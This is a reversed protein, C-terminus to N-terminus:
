SRGEILERLRKRGRKLLGEVARESREMYDSIFKVSCDHLHKLEVATRQDEPLGDLADALRQLDEHRIAAQSPSTQEAALADEFQRSSEDISIVGPRNDRMAQQLVNILIKRLWGRWEALTSGRFQAEREVAIALARQAADSPDQRCQLGPHWLCCAVLRLYSRDKAPDRDLM